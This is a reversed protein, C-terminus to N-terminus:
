MAWRYWGIVSLFAGLAALVFWVIRNPREPDAAM